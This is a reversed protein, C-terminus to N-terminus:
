PREETFVIIFMKPMEEPESKSAWQVLASHAYTELVVGIFNEMGRIAKNYTVLDGVKV